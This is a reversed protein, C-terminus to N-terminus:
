LPIDLFVDLIAIVPAIFWVNSSTAVAMIKKKKKKKVMTIVSTWNLALPYNQYM